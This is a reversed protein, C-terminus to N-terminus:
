NKIKNKARAEHPVDLELLSFEGFGLLADVDLESFEDEELEL